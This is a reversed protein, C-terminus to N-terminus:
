QGTSEKDTTEEDVIAIWAETDKDDGNARNGQDNRDRECREARPFSCVLAGM